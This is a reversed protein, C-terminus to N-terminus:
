LLLKGLPVRCALAFGEDGHAPEQVVALVHRIQYGLSMNWISNSLSLTTPISRPVVLLKTAHIFKVLGSTRGSTGLMTDTEGLLSIITPSFARWSSISWGSRVM